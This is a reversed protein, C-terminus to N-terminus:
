FWILVQDSKRLKLETYIYNALEALISLCFVHLKRYTAPNRRLGKFYLYEKQKLEM